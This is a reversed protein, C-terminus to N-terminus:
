SYLSCLTWSQGSAPRLFCWRRRSRWCSRLADDAHDDDGDDADDGHFSDDDNDDNDDDDDDDDNNSQLCQYGQRTEEADGKMVKSAAHKPERSAIM